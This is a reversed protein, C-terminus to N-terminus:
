KKDEDISEVAFLAILVIFAQPQSFIASIMAFLLFVFMRKEQRNM